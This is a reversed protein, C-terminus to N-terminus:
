MSRVHQLTDLGSYGIKDLFDRDMTSVSEESDIPNSIM